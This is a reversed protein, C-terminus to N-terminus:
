HGSHAPPSTDDHESLKPKQIAVMVTVPGAKEFVLDLPFSDGAKLQNKLSVLMLHTKGPELTAHGQAPVDVAELQRMRVVGGEMSNTHFEVREAVPTTASVLRDATESSDFILMYAAGNKMTAVTPRAWPHKIELSGAKFDHAIAPNFVLWCATLLTMRLIPRLM